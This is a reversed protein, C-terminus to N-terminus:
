SKELTYVMAQYCVFEKVFKSAEDGMRGRPVAGAGALHKWVGGPEKV